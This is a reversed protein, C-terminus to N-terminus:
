VWGRLTAALYPALATVALVIPWLNGGRFRYAELLVSWSKGQWRGFGLEFGLTLVLWLLGVLALPWTGRIQLWPLALWAVALILAALLLGSLVLATSRGLRPMLVAERLAGDAVALVAIGAWVTVAKLASIADM